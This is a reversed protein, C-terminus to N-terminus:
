LKDRRNEEIKAFSRIEFIIFLKTTKIKEKGCNGSEFPWVMVSIKRFM